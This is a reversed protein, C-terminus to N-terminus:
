NAKKTKIGIRRGGLDVSGIASLVLCYVVYVGYNVPMHKLWWGGLFYVLANFLDGGVLFPKRPLRDLWPALAVPVIVGPILQLAMLVASALTSGTQEFVMFSLAFSGAVGGLCGLATAVIITTFDRTWLQKNM